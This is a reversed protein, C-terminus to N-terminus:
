LLKRIADFNCTKMYGDTIMQSFKEKEKFRYRVEFFLTETPNGKKSAALAPIFRYIAKKDEGQDPPDSTYRYLSIPLCGYKMRDHYM